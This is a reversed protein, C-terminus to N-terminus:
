PDLPGQLSSFHKAYYYEPDGTLVGAMEDIAKQLARQALCRPDDGLEGGYTFNRVRGMLVLLEQDRLSPEARREAEKQRRYEM